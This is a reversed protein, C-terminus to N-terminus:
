KKFADRVKQGAQKLSALFQAEKGAARLHNHGTARGVAETLKGRAHDASNKAKNLATM